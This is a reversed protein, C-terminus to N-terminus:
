DYCLLAPTTASIRSRGGLFGLEIVFAFGAIEGGLKEVLRATAAATGGTAMVDDVILVQEGPHVADRHIELLDTGYELEYKRVSSRGRCSAPRACRFSAPVSGTPSRRLSSSAGHRSGSSGTSRTSPSTTPSRTSPRGSPKADGLLPTIDKFTVGPKPFDPIDRIHEALWGVDTGMLAEQGEEAAAAPPERFLYAVRNGTAAGDGGVQPGAGVGAPERDASGTALAARSSPGPTRVAPPPANPSASACRRTGRSANRSCRRARTLRHLDVLLGRVHARHVLALGFEELTTAGLVFAGIVLVSLIPLLATISTNLSRMLVQNLSLNVM